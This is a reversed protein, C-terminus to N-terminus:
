PLATFASFNWEARPSAKQLIKAAVRLSKEDKVPVSMQAAYDAYKDVTRFWCTAEDFGTCMQAQKMFRGYDL